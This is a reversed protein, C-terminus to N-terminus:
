DELKAKTSIPGWLWVVVVVAVIAVLGVDGILLCYTRKRRCWGLLLSCQLLVISRSLLENNPQDLRCQRQKSIPNLNLVEALVRLNEPCGREVPRLRIGM